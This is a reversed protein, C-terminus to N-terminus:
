SVGTRVLSVAAEVRHTLAFLDYLRASEIRFGEVLIASLDRALTAPECSVYIFRRVALRALGRAAPGLGARPPDAVVLDFRPARPL